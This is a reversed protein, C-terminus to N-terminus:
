CAVLPRSGVEGVVGEDVLEAGLPGAGLARSSRELTDLLAVGSSPPSGDWACPWEGQDDSCEDKEEDSVVDGLADGM